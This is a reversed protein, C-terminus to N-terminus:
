KAGPIDYNNFELIKNVGIGTSAQDTPVSKIYLNSAVYKQSSNESNAQYSILLPVQVLWENDTEYVMVSQSVAISTIDVKKFKVDKEVDTADLINLYSQYGDKTFVNSINQLNKDYNQFDTTHIETAVLTAWKILADPTINPRDMSQILQTQDAENQIYYAQQPRLYHMTFILACLCLTIQSFLTLTIFISSSILDKDITQPAIQTM